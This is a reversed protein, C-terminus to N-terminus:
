NTFATQVHYPPSELLPPSVSLFFDNQKLLALRAQQRGTLRQFFGKTKMLENLLKSIRLDVLPFFNVCISPANVRSRETFSSLILFLSPKTPMLVLARISFANFPLTWIEWTALYLDKERWDNVLTSQIMPSGKNESALEKPCRLSRYSLM